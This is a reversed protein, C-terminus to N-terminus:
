VASDESTELDHNPRTGDGHFPSFKAAQAETLQVFLGKAQVYITGDVGRIVGDSYVKRGDVRQIDGECILVRNLPVPARMDAEFRALVVRYGCVWVTGGAVEDLVALLAGGHAHGPPGEAGPGFWVKARLGGEDNERYYRIRVRDGSPDDHVYNRSSEMALLPNAPM